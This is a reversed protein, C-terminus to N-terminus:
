IEAQICSLLAIGFAIVVNELDVLVAFSTRSSKSTRTFPFLLYSVNGSTSIFYRLIEAEIYSLLLIGFDGVM